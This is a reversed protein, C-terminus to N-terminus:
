RQRRAVEYVAEFREAVAAWGFRESVMQRAAAGLAAAEPRQELLHAVAAAIAGADREPVVHATVGHEVVAGIGGAATTVLATGSALAEMVVNPLGDVNGAEDRVSPVVVVDAAALYSAMEDHPITGPFRVREALGRAASRERYEAALDGDGGIVAIARPRRAAIGSMADILYEFGKKRVFRGATFVMEADDPLGLSARVRARTLADPRFRATNVGYPIVESRDERAGLRVARDRLDGSCATVWAAHAFTQSALRGAVFNREAVYVDSGHLSVVLPVDGAAYSAIVGGPVVWHGHVITAGTDRVVRRALRWGSFMAAPAALWASGRLTVDERLGGAYGFVHGASAPAYRFFHFHVGGERDPRTVRPHWPLVMHVAHGRAALGHAIPEMFTGVTDGPFRPYSTAVMVVTHSM